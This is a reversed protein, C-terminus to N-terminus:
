YIYKSFSHAVYFVFCYNIIESVYQFVYIAIITAITAQSGSNRIAVVVFCVAKALLSINYLLLVFIHVFLIATARKQNDAKRIRLLADAYFIACGLRQILQMIEKAALMYINCNFFETQFDSQSDDIPVLDKLTIITIIVVTNITFIIAVRQNYKWSYDIRNEYNSNLSSDTSMTVQKVLFKSNVWYFYCFCLQILFDLSYFLTEAAIIVALPVGFINPFFIENLLCAM